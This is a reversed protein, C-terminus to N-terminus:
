HHGFCRVSLCKFRDAGCGLLFTGRLRIRIRFLDSRRFGPGRFSFSGFRSLERLSLLLSLDFKGGAGHLPHQPIAVWLLNGVSDLRRPETKETLVSKRPSGGSAIEVRVQRIPKITSLRGMAAVTRASSTSVTHLFQGTYRAVSVLATALIVVALMVEILTFGRREM